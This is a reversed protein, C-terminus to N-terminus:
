DGDEAGAAGVAASGPDSVQVAPVDIIEGVSAGAEKLIKYVEAAYAKGDITGTPTALGQRDDEVKILQPARGFAREWIWMWCGVRVHSSTRGDRAIALIGLFAESANSRALKIAESYTTRAKFAKIGPAFKVTSRSSPKRKENIRHLADLQRRREEPKTSLGPM